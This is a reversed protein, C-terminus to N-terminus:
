PTRKYGRTTAGKRTFFVDIRSFGEVETLACSQGTRRPGVTTTNTTNEIPRGGEAETCVANDPAGTQWNCQQCTWSNTAKSSWRITRHSPGFQRACPGLSDSMKLRCVQPQDTPRRPCQVTRHLGCLLWFM